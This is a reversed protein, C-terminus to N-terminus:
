AQLDLYVPVPTRQVARDVRGAFAQQRRLAGLTTAMAAQVRTQREAIAV